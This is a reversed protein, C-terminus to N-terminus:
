LLCDENKGSSQERPWNDEALAVGAKEETVTVLNGGDFGNAGTTDTERIHRHAAASPFCECGCKPHIQM